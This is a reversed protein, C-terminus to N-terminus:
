RNNHIKLLFQLIPFQFLGLAIAMINLSSGISDLNVRNSLFLYLAGLFLATVLGSLPVFYFIRAVSRVEGCSPETNLWASYNMLQIMGSFIGGLWGFSATVLITEFSGISQTPVVTPLLMLPICFVYYILLSSTRYPLDVNRKSTVREPIAVQPAFKRIDNLLLSDQWNEIFASITIVQNSQKATRYILNITGFPNEEIRDLNNWPIEKRLPFYYYSQLGADSSVLRCGRVYLLVLGTVPTFCALLMLSDALADAKNGAFFPVFAM